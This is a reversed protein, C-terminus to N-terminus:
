YVKKIIGLSQVFVVNEKKNSRNAYDALTDGNEDKDKISAGHAILLKMMTVDANQAAHLLPTRLTTTLSCSVGYLYFPLKTNEQYEAKSLQEKSFYRQNVNAGNGLLLEVMTIDNYGIAYFLPTKGFSNTYNINAKKSLLFKTIEPNKLAFFLASEHGNDINAGADLLKQLYETSKNHLIATKLGQNLEDATAQTLVEQLQQPTTKTSIIAKELPSIDPNGDMFSASFSGVAHSFIDHMVATAYTTALARSIHFTEQYHKTLKPLTKIYEDWFQSYLEYNHLSQHGWLKFYNQMIRIWQNHEIAKNGSYFDKAFLEPSLGAELLSFRDGRYMAYQMSGFCYIGNANGFLDGRVNDRVQFMTQMFPLTYITGNCDYDVDIPSGHGSGLDLGHKFIIDKYQHLEKCTVDGDNWPANKLDLKISKNGIQLTGVIGKNNIKGRFFSNLKIESGTNKDYRYLDFDIQGNKLSGIYHQDEMGKFSLYGDIAGERTQDKEGENEGNSQAISLIVSKGDVAGFYVRDFSLAFLQGTVVICFLLIKFMLCRDM